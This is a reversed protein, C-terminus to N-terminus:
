ARYVPAPETEDSLAFDDVRAAHQLLLELNRRVSAQWAPEIPLALAAANAAVMRDLDHAVAGDRHPASKAQQSSKKRKRSTAM